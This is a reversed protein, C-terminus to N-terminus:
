PRRPAHSPPAHDQGPPSYLDVLRLRTAHLRDTLVTILRRFIQYGLEPRQDCLAIVAAADLEFAITPETAEAGFEWTRPPPCLWSLGMLEGEGITEIILPRRGPLHVDLAVHGSAILWFRDAAGGEEFFRFGAPVSRVSAWAALQAAFAPPLGGLFPHETVDAPSSAIM